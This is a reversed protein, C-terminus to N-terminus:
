ENGGWSGRQLFRECGQVALRVMDAMVPEEDRYFPALVFAEIEEDFRPRGIGIRMRAFQRDGLHDILSQVGRHGGAGGGAAIRIRGVPLDLDDHIVLLSDLELRYYDLCERVAQGSRNMYTLPRLLIVERDDFRTRAHRSQFRSGTLGAGLRESLSDLALFGINHRTRQYARGPNGLGVILWVDRRTM